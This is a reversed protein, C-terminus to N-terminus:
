VTRQWVFAVCTAGPVMLEPSRGSLGIDPVQWFCCSRAMKQRERPAGAASKNANVRKELNIQSSPAPAVDVLVGVPCAAPWHGAFSDNMLLTRRGGVPSPDHLRPRM